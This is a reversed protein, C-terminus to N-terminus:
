CLPNSQHKNTTSIFLHQSSTSFINNLDRNFLLSSFFLPFSFFPFSHIVNEFSNIVCFYADTEQSSILFFSSALSLILSVSHVVQEVAPPVGYFSGIGLLIFSAGAFAVIAPRLSLGVISM